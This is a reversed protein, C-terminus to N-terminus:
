RSEQRRRSRSTRHPADKTSRCAVEFAVRDRRATRRRLGALHAPRRQVTLADTRPEVDAPQLGRDSAAVGVRVVQTPYPPPRRLRRAVDWRWHEARIYAELEALTSGEAIEGPAFARYHVSRHELEATFAGDPVVEAGGYDCGDETLTLRM